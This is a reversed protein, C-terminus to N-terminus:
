GEHRPRVQIDSRHHADRVRLDAILTRIAWAVAIGSERGTMEFEQRLTKWALASSLYSIIAACARAAAPDLHATADSLAATLAELRRAHGPRHGTLGVESEIRALILSAHDDFSAFAQETREPIEGATTPVPVQILHRDIWDEAAELLAERTPFYRYVTRISVGSRRAVGPINFDRFGGEALQQALAGLIQERTQLVQRDRLPSSYPRLSSPDQGPFAAARVAPM